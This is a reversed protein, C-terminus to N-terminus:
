FQGPNIYQKRLVRTAVWKSTIENWVLVCGDELDTTDVDVLDGLRFIAMFGEIVSVVLKPDTIEVSVRDEAITVPVSPKSVRVTTSANPRVQVSINGM